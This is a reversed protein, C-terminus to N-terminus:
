SIAPEAYKKIEQHAFTQIIRTGATNYLYFLTKVALPSRKHVIPIINKGFCVNLDIRLTAKNEVRTMASSAPQEPPVELEEEISDFCVFEGCVSRM